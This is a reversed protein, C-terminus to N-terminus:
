MKWSGTEIKINIKGVSHIIIKAKGGVVQIKSAEIDQDILTIFHIESFINQPNYYREKIEGKDYYAQIPDNPFVCLKM